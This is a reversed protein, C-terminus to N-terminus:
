LSRFNQSSILWRRAGKPANRGFTDWNPVLVFVENFTKAAAERGRGYYLRGTVQVLVSCKAGTKDPTDAIGPPAAVVYDPNVVHADFSELELRVLPTTSAASSSSSSSAKPAPVGPLPAEHYHDDLLRAYAAPDTLPLGNISLDPPHSAYSTSATTYFAAIASPKRRNLADYYADVFIKATDSAQKIQVERTPLSM